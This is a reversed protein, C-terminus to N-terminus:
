RAPTPRLWDLRELLPKDSVRLLYSEDKATWIHPSSSPVALADGRAWNFSKGDINATGRGHMPAYICNLTSPEVSLSAGADLRTVHLAITALAPSGLEIERVGTATEQADALLAVTDAWAFRCPSQAAVEDAREVDDPHHEFFMPGLMHVTPVDLFDMWYANSPGENSHGHWYWNPTLLVDGPEMPIKKGEVITYAREGTDLVLRLANATHRHSRAVEGGKVMQYAAVLTKVTPYKNGEVPNALILNRREALATNVFRGAADLAARGIEWSFHAPLFEKKPFAYLSPEPKNWGNEIKCAALLDYLEQMSAADNFSQATVAMPTEGKRAM